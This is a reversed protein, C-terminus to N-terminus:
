YLYKFVKAFAAVNPTGVGTTADWGATASYGPIGGYSNNGSTVDHFISTYVAKNKTVQYLKPNLFGLPHGAYQNVVATVGAWLPTSLSTGGYLYYGASIGPLGLYIPVGTYPDAVMSLDPVARHNKLLKQDSGSLLRQIAPRRSIRWVYPWRQSRKGWAVFLPRTAPM